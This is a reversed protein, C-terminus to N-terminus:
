SGAVSADAAQDNAVMWDQQTAAGSELIRYQGADWQLHVCRHAALWREARVTAGVGLLVRIAGQTSRACTEVLVCTGEELRRLIWGLLVSPDELRIIWLTNRGRPDSVTADELKDVVTMAMSDALQDVLGDTPAEALMLTGPRGLMAVCEPALPHAGALSLSGAMDFAVGTPQAPCSTTLAPALLDGEDTSSSLAFDVNDPELARKSSRRKEGPFEPAPAEESSSTLEPDQRRESDWPTPQRRLTPRNAPQPARAAGESAEPVFPDLPPLELPAGIEATPVERQLCGRVSLQEGTPDVVLKWRGAEVVVRFEVISGVALEAQQEPDLVQSLASFLQAEDVPNGTDFWGVDTGFRASGGPQLLIEAGAQTAVEQLLRPLSLVEVERYCVM